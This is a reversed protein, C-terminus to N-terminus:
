EDRIYKRYAKGNLKVEIDPNRRCLSNVTKVVSKPDFNSISMFVSDGDTTGVYFIDTKELIRQNANFKTNEYLAVAELFAEDNTNRKIFTKTGVIIKSIENIPVRLRVNKAPLLEGFFKIKCLTQYPFFCNDWCRMILSDGEVAIWTSYLENLCVVVYSAGLLIGILYSAVYWYNSLIINYVTLALAAICLIIVIWMMVSGRLRKKKSVAAKGNMNNEGRVSITRHFVNQEPM